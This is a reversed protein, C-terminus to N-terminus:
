RLHPAMAASLARDLARALRRGGKPNLHVMDKLALGQELWRKMAGPGGMGKQGDWFACGGALAVQRQKDAVRRVVAPSRLRGRRDRVLRDLPGIVLCSTAPLAKKVRALVVGVKRGYRELDGGYNITDNAGFQFVILDPRRHSLQQAFHTADVLTLQHFRASVLPLNDWVVGPLDRELVLGFLRVRGRSKFRIQHSGDDVTLAHYAARTEPANTDVRARLKDDVLVEISGGGRRALYALEIRSFKRRETSWIRLWRRGGESEAASCGLGLLRDPRKGGVLRYTLWGGSRAHGISAQNYWSWPKAALTFGHGADGYRKQYLNRLPSTIHDLDILSDGYHVVRTIAGPKKAVTRALARAFHALAGKDGQIPEVGDAAAAAPGSSGGSGAGASRATPETPSREGPEAPPAVPATSAGAPVAPIAPARAVPEVGGTLLDHVPGPALYGVRSCRGCAPSRWRRVPSSRPRERRRFM